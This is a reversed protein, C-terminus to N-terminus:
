GGVNEEPVRFLYLALHADSNQIYWEATGQQPHCPCIGAAREITNMRRSASPPVGRITLVCEPCESQLGNSLRPRPAERERLPRGALGLLPPVHSSLMAATWLAACRWRCAFNRRGDGRSQKREPASLTMWCFSRAGQWDIQWSPCFVSGVVEFPPRLDM